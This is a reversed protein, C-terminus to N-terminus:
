VYYSGGSPGSHADTRPTRMSTLMEALTTSVVKPNAARPQARPVSACQGGISGIGFPTPRDAQIKSGIGSHPGPPRVGFPPGQRFLVPATGVTTRGLQKARQLPNRVSLLPGTPQLHPQVGFPPGRPDQLRVRARRLVTPGNRREGEQRISPPLRRPFAPPRSLTTQRNNILGM